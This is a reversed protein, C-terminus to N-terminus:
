ALKVDLPDIEFPTTRGFVEADAHVKPFPHHSHEVMRRFTAMFGKFPGSLIELAQGSEFEWAPAELNERQRDRADYEQQVQDLFHVVGKRQNGKPDLGGRWEAPPIPCLTPALNKIELCDLFQQAPIDAFLFNPVYPADYFVVDRKTRGVRKKRLAKPASAWLGLAEISAEVEFERGARAYLLYKM